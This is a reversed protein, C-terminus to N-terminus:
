EDKKEDEEDFFCASGVFIAILMLFLFLGFLLYITGMGIDSSITLPINMNGRKTKRVRIQFRYWSICGRSQRAANPPLARVESLAQATTNRLAQCDM